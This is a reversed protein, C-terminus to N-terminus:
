PSFLADLEVSAAVLEDRYANARVGYTTVMTLLITKRTKAIRHFAESKTRLEAAYRKDIVFEAESFKMECLNITADKRDILLDIQAGSGGESSPSRWTSELTEVAAIGLAVKLQRSHKLCVGEFALGGWARWAPSTRRKMWFGDASGRHPEIWRLYFLSYEDALRYLADKTKAGFAPVRMVFGSAELEDLLTTAAGGSAMDAAELLENRTMGSAKGALARVVAEHREAHEFLSRYVDRFEDHLAGHPSFCIRDINQSASESRRIEKLYHPVGGMTMYLELTQYNGLEIHREALFERTEALTFPELRLRRTVRNHLGGRSHLVKDLMWAAASGCIVVVLWPRKTAWSNWFHELARLFGSRRSSLWPLEDLFVVRKAARRPLRDLAEGLRAFASQWDEPATSEAGFASDFARAFSRLQEKLPADFVGTLEFCLQKAFFQRVLYTKGIRRRGYVCVLEAETADLAGQLTRQESRRGILAAM